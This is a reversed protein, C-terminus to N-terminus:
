AAPPPLASTFPEPGNYSHDCSARSLERRATCPGSTVRSIARTVCLSSTGHSPSSLCPLLCLCPSPPSLSLCLCPRACRGRSGPTHQQQQEPEATEAAILLRMGRERLRAVTNSLHGNGMLAARQATCSGVSVTRHMRLESANCMLEPALQSLLLAVLSLGAGGGVM